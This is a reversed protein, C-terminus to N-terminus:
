LSIVAVPKTQVPMKKKPLNLRDLFADFRPDDSLKSLPM